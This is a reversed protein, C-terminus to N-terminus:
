IPNWQALYSIAAQLVEVQERAMGIMTNCRRCLLARVTGTTHDHDVMANHAPTGSDFDHLCIACRGGQDALMTAWQTPTLRYKRALGHRRLIGAIHERKDSRYRRFYQRTCEGCRGSRGGSRTRDRPFETLPLVNKCTRCRKSHPEDM